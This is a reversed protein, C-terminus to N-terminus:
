RFTRMQMLSRMQMQTQRGNLGWPKVTMAPMAAPARLMDGMATQQMLSAEEEQLYYLVASMAASAKKKDEM